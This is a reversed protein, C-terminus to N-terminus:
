AAYMGGNVQLTQGTIYGAEENVLFAVAAAVDEPQGLRGAPIRTLMASRQEESLVDNMDTRSFGPAVVNVTINRSAVEQALSRSFGEVAAKTAVYNAQGANGMRGVVSGINVVRGWRAKVMGRLLAKTIRFTGTLNTELVDSWEAESMRLMLNDRTIGANNVLITPTLDGLKQIAADVSDPENLRLEIGQGTAGLQEQISAAGAASTATGIVTLGDAQLRKLIAAGIGRSAGTVLAVKDM